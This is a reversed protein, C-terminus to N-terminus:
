FSHLVFNFLLVIIETLFDKANAIPLVIKLAYSISYSHLGILLDICEGNLNCFQRKFCRNTSFLRQWFLDINEM